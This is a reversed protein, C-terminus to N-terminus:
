LPSNEDESEPSYHQTPIPEEDSPDSPIDETKKSRAGRSAAPKKLVGRGRTTKSKPKPEQGDVNKKGPKNGLNSEKLNKQDERTVMPHEPLEANPSTKDLSKDKVGVDKEDGQVEVDKKDGQVEVDKKDGEVEVDKKDSPIEGGDNGGGKWSSGQLHCSSKGRLLPAPVQGEGEADDGESEGLELTRARLIHDYTSEEVPQTEVNDTCCTIKSTAELAKKMALQSKLKEIREKVETIKEASAEGKPIKKPVPPPPMSVPSSKNGDDRAPPTTLVTSPEPTPTNKEKAQVQEVKTTGDTHVDVKLPETTEDGPEEKRQVEGPEEVKAPEAPEDGKEEDSGDMVDDGVRDAYMDIQPVRTSSESEPEEGEEVVLTAEGEEPEDHPYPDPEVIAEVGAGESEAWYTRLVEYFDDLKPDKNSSGSCFRRIGHSFLKKLGASDLQVNAADEADAGCLERFHKVEARLLDIPVAKPYGISPCWWKAICVLAVDNLSMAKVSPVSIAKDNIWRTMYPRVKDRVRRRVVKEEEWALGLQKPQPHPGLVKPSADSHEGDSSSSSGDAM